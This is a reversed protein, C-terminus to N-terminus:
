FLCKSHGHFAEPSRKVEQSRRGSPAKKRPVTVDPSAETQEEPIQANVSTKFILRSEPLRTARSPGLSRSVGTFGWVRSGGRSASSGMGSGPTERARHGTNQFCLSGHLRARSAPALRRRTGSEPQGTGLSCRADGPTLARAGWCTSAPTRSTHM